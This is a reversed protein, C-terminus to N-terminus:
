LVGRRIAQYSFYREACELLITRIRGLSKYISNVPRRLRQALAAGDLQRAYRDELLERDRRPLKELCSQLAEARDNFNMEERSIQQHLLELVKPKLKAEERTTQRRHQMVEYYAVQFAWAEFSTGPVFDTWKKWLVLNTNQLVDEANRSDGLLSVIYCYLSRQHASLETVFQRVEDSTFSRTLEAAM